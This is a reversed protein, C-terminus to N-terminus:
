VSTNAAWYRISVVVIEFPFSGLLTDRSSRTERGGEFNNLLSYVGLM